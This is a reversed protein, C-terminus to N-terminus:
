RVGRMNRFQPMSRGGGKGGPGRNQQLQAGGGMRTPAGAPTSPGGRGWGQPMVAQRQGSQGWGGGVRQPTPAVQGRQDASRGYSDIQPRRLAQSLQAPQPQLRLQPQQASPGGTIGSPPPTRTPQPMATQTPQPTMRGYGSAPGPPTPQQTSWAGGPAFPSSPSQGGLDSQQTPQGYPSVTSQSAQPIQSQTSLPTPAGLASQMWQNQAQMNGPQSGGGKGGPGQTQQPQWAGPSSKGGYSPPNQTRNGM